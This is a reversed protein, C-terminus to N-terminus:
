TVGEKALTQQTEMLGSMIGSIYHWQIQAKSNIHDIRNQVFQEYTGSGKLWYLVVISNNWGHVATVKCSQLSNAINEPLNAVIM